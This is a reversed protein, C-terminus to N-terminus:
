VQVAGTSTHVLCVAKFGSALSVDRVSAVLSAWGFLSLNSEPEVRVLLFCPRPYALGSKSSIADAVWRKADELDDGVDRVVAKSVVEADGRATSGTRRINSGGFVSGYRALAERQLYEYPAVASTVELYYKSELFGHEVTTGSVIIEGDFTNGHAVYTVVIHREPGEFSKAFIAIPLVEEVLRKVEPDRRLEFEQTHLDDISAFALRAFEFAPIPQKFPDLLSM